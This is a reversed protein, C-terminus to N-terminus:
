LASSDMCAHSIVALPEHEVDLHFDTKIKDLVHKTIKVMNSLDLYGVVKGYKAKVFSSLFSWWYSNETLLFMIRRLNVCEAAIVQSNPCTLM